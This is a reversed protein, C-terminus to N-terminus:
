IFSLLKVHLVSFLLFWLMEFVGRLSLWNCGLWPCQAQCPCSDTWKASAAPPSRQRTRLRPTWTGRSERYRRYLIYAVAASAPIGLGLAIKQVTSLTTWSTRETSMKQQVRVDQFLCILSFSASEGLVKIAPPPVHSRLSAGSSFM